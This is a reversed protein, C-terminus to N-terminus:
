AVTTTKITLAQLALLWPSCGHLRHREKDPQYPGAPCAIVTFVWAVTVCAVVLFCACGICKAWGIWGILGLGALACGPLDDNSKNSIENPM